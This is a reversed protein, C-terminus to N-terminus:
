TKYFRICVLMNQYIQIFYFITSGLVSMKQEFTKSSLSLINTIQHRRFLTKLMFIYKSFTVPIGKLKLLFYPIILVFIPLIISLIPSTMNYISMFQLFASNNNLFMFRKWDIYQYKDEFGTETIINNHVCSVDNYIKDQNDFRTPLNQQILNQSDM